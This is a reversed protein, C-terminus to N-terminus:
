FNILPKRRFVRDMRLSSVQGSGDTALSRDFVRIAGSCLQSQLSSISLFDSEVSSALRHSLHDGCM